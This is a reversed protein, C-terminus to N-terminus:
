FHITLFYKRSRCFILETFYAFLEGTLMSSLCMFLSIDLKAAFASSRSIRSVWIGQTEKFSVCPLKFAFNESMFCHSWYVREWTSQHWHSSQFQASLISHVLASFYPITAPPAYSSAPLLMKSASLWFWATLVHLVFCLYYVCIYHPIIFWNLFFLTCIINALLYFFHWSAELILQFYDDIDYEHCFVPAVSSEGSCRQGLDKGVISNYSKVKM